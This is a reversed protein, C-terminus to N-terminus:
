QLSGNGETVRELRIGELIDISTVDLDEAVSTIIDAIILKDDSSSVQGVVSIARSGLSSLENLTNNAVDSGRGSRGRSRGGRRGSSIYDPLDFSVTDCNSM